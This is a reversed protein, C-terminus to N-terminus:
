REDLFGHEALWTHLAQEAIGQQTDPLEGRIRREVAARRLANHVAQSIRVNLAVAQDKDDGGGATSNKKAM